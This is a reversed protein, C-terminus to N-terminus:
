HSLIQAGCGLSENNKFGESDSEYYYNECCSFRQSWIEIDFPILELQFFVSGKTRKLYSIKVLYM